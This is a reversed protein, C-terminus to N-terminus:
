FSPEMWTFTWLFISRTRGSPQSPSTMIDPFTSLRASILVLQTLACLTAERLARGYQRITRRSCLLRACLIQSISSRPIMPRTACQLRMTLTTPLCRFSPVQLRAGFSFARQKSLQWHFCDVDRMQIKRQLASGSPSKIMRMKMAPCAKRDNPRKTRKPESRASSAVSAFTRLYKPLPFQVMASATSATFMRGIQATLLLIRQNFAVKEDGRRILFSGQKLDDGELRAHQNETFKRYEHALPTQNFTQVGHTEDPAALGRIFTAAQVPNNVFRGLWLVISSYLTQQKTRVIRSERAQTKRKAGVTLGENGGRRVFVTKTSEIKELPLSPTMRRVMELLARGTVFSLDAKRVDEDRLLVLLDTLQEYTLPGAKVVFCCILCIGKSKFHFADRSRLGRRNDHDHSLKKLEEARAEVELDAQLVPADACQFAPPPDDNLADDSSFSDGHLDFDEDSTDKGDLDSVAAATQDLDDM